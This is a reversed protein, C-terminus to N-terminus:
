RVPVASMAGRRADHFYLYGSWVTLVTAILLAVHALEPVERGLWPTCALGVAIQQVATKWKASKRAPLSVGRRSLRGRYWSIAVERVAIIAVWPWWFADKWTLVILASIVLVKDALPDLFAGSNTPGMSRALMGDLADSGCAVLWLLFTALDFSRQALLLLVIPTLAMRM